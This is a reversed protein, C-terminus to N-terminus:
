HEENELEHRVVQVADDIRAYLKLPLVDLANHPLHELADSVKVLSGYNMSIDLTAVYQQASLPDDLDRIESEGASKEWPLVEVVRFLNDASEQEGSAAEPKM